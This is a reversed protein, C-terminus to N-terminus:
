PSWNTRASVTVCFPWIRVNVSGNIVSVPVSVPVEKTSLPKNKSSRPTQIKVSVIVQLPVTFGFLRFKVPDEVSEKVHKGKRAQEKLALRM